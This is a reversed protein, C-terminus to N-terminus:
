AEQYEVKNYFLNKWEVNHVFEDRELEYSVQREYDKLIFKEEFRLFVMVNVTIFNNQWIAKADGEYIIENDDCYVEKLGQERLFYELYYENM